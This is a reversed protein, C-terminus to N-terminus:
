VELYDSQPLVLGLLDDYCFSSAIQVASDLLGIILGRDKLKELQYQYVSVSYEKARKLLASIQLDDKKECAETLRDILDAGGKWPVLITESQNDFVDFLEGATKFAQSLYYRDNVQRNLLSGNENGSLLSYLSGHNTYYDQAGRNMSHYLHQYYALIASDSALDNQYEEPRQMFSAILSLTANKGEQIEKLRGLKENSCLVLHVKAPSSSEGNRNCRGAAQVVSDMGACLRIVSGFSIDVGAEIVQTSYCIFKAGSRLMQKMENLVHRRHAPCMSASLHYCTIGMEMTLTVLEVAEDKRNCVVLVSDNESLLGVALPAIEALQVSGDYVLETRHFPKWLAESCPILDQIKMLAPREAYELAPQTASCLVFTTNCYKALFSIASNFMSLMKRPVTQVEDIVIVSNCLSHFRRVSSTKGDFMTNLLQVLTTIIIPSSWTEMLLEHNEAIDDSEDEHVVNSHHELILSDDQIYQRIVDANQELISLLPTTIIIREKQHAVTHNLAYRLSSLTKGAGTPVNLRYIGTSLEAAEACQASIASRSHNIPTEATNANLSHVGDEVRDRVAKWQEESLPDPFRIGNMFEATDRRDGEILYSCLLRTLMGTMFQCADKTKGFPRFTNLIKRLECQAQEYFQLFDTEAICYTFFATECEEAHISQDLLRREFGNEGDENTCDFLGHHAGCSYAMLEAAVANFDLAVSAHFRKLLFQVGAFTHNVSGRIVKEHNAAKTIYQKFEPTYKGIDHVLGLVRMTTELGTNKALKSSWQSTNKLHESVSQVIRQGSKDNRIHAPFLDTEM